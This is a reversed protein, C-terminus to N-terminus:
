KTCGECANLRALLENRYMQVQARADNVLAAKTGDTPPVVVYRGNAKMYATHAKEYEEFLKALSIKCISM